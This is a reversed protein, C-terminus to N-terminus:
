KHRDNIAEYAQSHQFGNGLIKWVFKIKPDNKKKKLQRIHKKIKMWMSFFVFVRVTVKFPYGADCVTVRMMMMLPPECVNDDAEYQDDGRGM